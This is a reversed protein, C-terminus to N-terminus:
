LRGNSGEVYNLRGYICIRVVCVRDLGNWDTEIKNLLIWSRSALCDFLNLMRLTNLIILRCPLGVWKFSLCTLGILKKKLTTTMILHHTHLFCLIGIQEWRNTDSDNRHFAIEHFLITKLLRFDKNKSNLRKAFRGYSANVFISTHNLRLAFHFSFMVKVQFSVTGYLRCGHSGSALYFFFLLWKKHRKKAFLAWEFPCIPRKICKWFPWVFHWYSYKSFPNFGIHRM